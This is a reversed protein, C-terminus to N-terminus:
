YRVGPANRGMFPPKRGVLTELVILEEDTHNLFPGPEVKAAAGSNDIWVPSEHYETKIVKTQMGKADVAAEGYCLCLYTRTPHDEIYMGTGRIGISANRTEVNMKGTKRKSFVSLLKGSLLAITDLTDGSGKVTIETNERLLFADGGVVVVAMSNKGTAVRDGSKVPTGVKAPQGNVTVVGEARNIGPIAPMDGAALAEQILGSIGASGLLGLAALQKIRNRRATSVTM